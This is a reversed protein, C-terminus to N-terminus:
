KKDLIINNEDYNSILWEDNKYRIIKIRLGDDCFFYITNEQGNDYIYDLLKIQEKTGTIALAENIFKEAQKFKKPDINKKPEDLFLNYSTLGANELALEEAKFKEEDNSMKIFEFPKDIYAKLLEYDARERKSPAISQNAEKEKADLRDFNAIAKGTQVFGLKGSESICMTKLRTTEKRFSLQKINKLSSQLKYLYITTGTFSQGTYLTFFLVSNIKRFQAQNVFNGFSGSAMQEQIIEEEKTFKGTNILNYKVIFVHGFRNYVVYLDQADLFSGAINYLDIPSESRESQFKWAINKEVFDTHIITESGNANTSVAKWEVKTSDEKRIFTLLLQDHQQKYITDMKQIQKVIRTVAHKANQSKGKKNQKQGVCNLLLLSLCLLFICKKM